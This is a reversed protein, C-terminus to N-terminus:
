KRKLGAFAAAMATQQKPQQKQSPARRNSPQPSRAPKAAHNDDGQRKMTLAIRKRPLDVDLVRVKVV